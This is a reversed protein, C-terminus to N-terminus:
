LKSVCLLCPCNPLHDGGGGMLGDAADYFHDLLSNLTESMNDAVSSGKLAEISELVSSVHEGCIDKFEMETKGKGVAALLAESVAVLNGAAAQAGAKDPATSKDAYFQVARACGIFTYLKTKTENM